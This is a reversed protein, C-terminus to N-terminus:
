YLNWRNLIFGCDVRDDVSEVIRRNALVAKAAGVVVAFSRIFQTRVTACVEFPPVAVSNNAELDFRELTHEISAVKGLWADVINIKAYGNVTKLNVGPRESEIRSEHRSREGIGRAGTAGGAILLKSFQLLLHLLHLLLQAREM